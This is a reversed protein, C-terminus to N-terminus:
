KKEANRQNKPREKFYFVIQLFFFAEGKEKRFLFPDSLDKKNRNKIKQGLLDFFL